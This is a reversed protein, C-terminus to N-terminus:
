EKLNPNICLEETPFVKGSMCQDGVGVKVCTRYNRDTGVYCYGPTKTLKLDLVSSAKYHKSEEENEVDDEENNRVLNKSKDSIKQLVTNENSDDNKNFFDTDRKDKKQKKNKQISEVQKHLDTEEKQEKDSIHKASLDISDYITDSTKENNQELTNPKVKEETKQKNFFSNFYPTIADTGTKLYTLINIGLLIFIAIALCIKFFFWATFRSKPVDSTLPIDNTMDMAEFSMNNQSNM